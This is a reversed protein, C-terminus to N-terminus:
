PSNGKEMGLLLSLQALRGANPSRLCLAGARFPEGEGLGELVWGPSYCLSKKPALNGTISHPSPLCSKPHQLVLGGRRSRFSILPTKNNQASQPMLKYVLHKRTQQSQMESQLCTKQANVSCCQAERQPLVLNEPFLLSSTPCTHPGPREDGASVESLLM